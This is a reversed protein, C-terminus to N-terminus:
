FDATLSLMFTRPQNQVFFADTAVWYNADFLNVRIPRLRESPAPNLVRAEDRRAQPFLLAQRNLIPTANVVSAVPRAEAVQAAVKPPPAAAAPKAMTPRIVQLNLAQGGIRSFRMNGAM